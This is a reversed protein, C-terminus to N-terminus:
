RVRQWRGPVWCRVRYAHAVWHGPVWVYRGPSPRIPRRAVRPVPPRVCFHRNARRFVRTGGVRRIPASGFTVLPRSSAAAVMVPRPIARVVLAAASRVPQALIVTLLVAALLITRSPARDRLAHRPSLTETDM